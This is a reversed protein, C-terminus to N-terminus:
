LLNSQFRIGMCMRSHCHINLLSYLEYQPSLSLRNTINVYCSVESLSYLQHKLALAPDDRRANSLSAM